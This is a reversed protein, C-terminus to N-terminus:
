VSFHVLMSKKMCLSRQAQDSLLANAVLFELKEKVTSPFIRNSSTTATHEAIEFKQKVHSNLM